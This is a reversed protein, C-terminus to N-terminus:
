DSVNYWTDMMEDFDQEKGDKIAKVMVKVIRMFDSRCKDQCGDYQTHKWCLRICRPYYKIMVARVKDLMYADNKITGADQAYVGADPQKSANALCGSMLLLLILKKM